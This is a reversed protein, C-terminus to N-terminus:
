AAFLQLICQTVLYMERYAFFKSLVIATVITLNGSIQEQDKVASFAFNGQLCCHVKTVNKMVSMIVEVVNIDGIGM